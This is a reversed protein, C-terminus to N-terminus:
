LPYEWDLTQRFTDGQSGAVTCFDIVILALVSRCNVLVEHAIVQNALEVAAGRTEFLGPFDVLTRRGLPRSELQSTQAEGYTGM